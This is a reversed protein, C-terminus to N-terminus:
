RRHLHEHCTVCITTLFDPHLAIQPYKKLSRVHHVYNAHKDSCISCTWHDRLLIEASRIGWELSCYFTHTNGFSQRFEEHDYGLLQVPSNLIIKKGKESIRQFM